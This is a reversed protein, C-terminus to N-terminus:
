RKKKNIIIIATGLANSTGNNFYVKRGLERLWRNEIDTTSHTEQLIIIDEGKLTLWKLVEGRKVNNGLGNVNLTGVKLGPLDTGTVSVFIHLFTGAGRQEQKRM